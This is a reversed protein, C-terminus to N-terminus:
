SLTNLLPLLFPQLNPQLFIHIYIKHRDTVLLSNIFDHLPRNFVNLVTRNNEIKEEYKAGIAKIFKHVNQLLTEDREKDFKFSLEYLFSNDGNNIKNIKCRTLTAIVFATFNIDVELFRNM